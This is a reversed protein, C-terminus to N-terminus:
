LPFEYVGAANERQLREEARKRDEIDTCAANWRLVKGQDDRAPNCRILFWRYIEMM